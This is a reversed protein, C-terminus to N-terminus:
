KSATTEPAYEIRVIQTDFNDGWNTGYEVVYLCGDAGLEMDMPRMFTMKECFKEMKAIKDDKDLHVAIIWNRSWEYIFLTHDFEKPLKHESKLNEDYYYVPGAMATRGGSGVVPFKTSPSAPYWLFAPQAAPLDKMGTNFPSNNVPKSADFQAGSEKKAFDYAYYAKNDGVFYPWGFFGAVRAQNIEDFGASGRTPNPGGADPGVEGWYLYGNKQDINIRFPNRDGM